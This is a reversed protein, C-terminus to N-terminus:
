VKMKIMWFNLWTKTSAFCLAAKQNITVLTQKYAHIEFILSDSFILIISVRRQILLWVTKPWTCEAFIILCHKYKRHVRINLLTICSDPKSLYTLMYGAAAKSLFWGVASSNRDCFCSHRAVKHFFYCTQEDVM